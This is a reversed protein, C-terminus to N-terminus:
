GVLSHDGSALATLGHGNWWDDRDHTVNIVSFCGQEVSDTLCFYGCALSTADCLMDACILDLNIALFDGKQIGRTVFCESCHASTTCLACVNCDDNYRCIISNHGLCSF